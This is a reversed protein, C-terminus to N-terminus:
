RTEQGRTFLAGGARGGLAPAMACTEQSWDCFFVVLGKITDANRILLAM